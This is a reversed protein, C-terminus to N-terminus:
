TGRRAEPPQSAKVSLREGKTHCFGEQGDDTTCDSDENPCAGMGTPCAQGLANAQSAAWIVMLPLFARLAPPREM